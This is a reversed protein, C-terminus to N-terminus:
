EQVFDKKRVCLRIELILNLILGDRIKGLLYEALMRTPTPWGGRIAYLNLSEWTAFDYHLCHRICYTKVIVYLDEEQIETICRRPLQLSKKQKDYEKRWTKNTPKDPSPVSPFQQNNGKDATEAQWLQVRFLVELCLRIDLEGHMKLSECLGPVNFVSFSCM